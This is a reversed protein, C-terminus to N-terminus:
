ATEVELYQPTIKANLSKDIFHRTSGFTKEQGLTCRSIVTALHM